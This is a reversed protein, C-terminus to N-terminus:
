FHANGNQPYNLLQAVDNIKNSDMQQPQQQPTITISSNSNARIQVHQNQLYSKQHETPLSKLIAPNLRVGKHDYHDKYSNRYENNGNIVLNTSASNSALQAATPERKSSNYYNEKDINTNNSTPTATTIAATTTTTSAPATSVSSTNPQQTKKLAYNFLNEKPKRTIHEAIIDLTPQKEGALYKLFSDQYSNKRNELQFEFTKRKPPPM